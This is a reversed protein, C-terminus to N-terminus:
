ASPQGCHQQVAQLLRSLNTPKKMIMVGSPARSPDSTSVIVPVRALRPDRQMRQYVENGDLIPMLIDLIVVCPLDEEGLRDLADAGNAATSVLYGEEQFFEQLSDRIDAEDDVILVKM